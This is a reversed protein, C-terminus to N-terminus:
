KQGFLMGAESDARVHKWTTVFEEWFWGNKLHPYKNKLKSPIKIKEDEARITALQDLDKAEMWFFNAREGNDNPKPVDHKLKVFFTQWKIDPQKVSLIKGDKSKVASFFKKRDPLPHKFETWINSGEESLVIGNGPKDKSDRTEEFLEMAATDFSDKHGKDTEFTGGMTGAFGRHKQRSLVHSAVLVEIRNEKSKRFVIVGGDWGVQGLGDQGSAFNVSCGLAVVFALFKM